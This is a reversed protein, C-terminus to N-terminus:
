LTSSIDFRPLFRHNTEQMVDFLTRGSYFTRKRTTESPDLTNIRSWKEIIDEFTDTRPNLMYSNGMPNNGGIHTNFIGWNSGGIGSRVKYTWSTWSWGHEQFLALTSLWAQCSHDGGPLVTFEGMLIPVNWGNLGSNAGNVGNVRDRMSAMHANYLALRNRELADPNQYLFASPNTPRNIVVSGWSVGNVVAGQANTVGNVNLGYHTYHHFKYIINSNWNFGHQNNRPHPLHAQWWNAGFIIIHDPNVERIGRYMEDYFNWHNIGTFGGHEGPENLLDLAAVNPNDAFHEAIAVWMELTKRRNETGIPCNPNFFTVYPVWSGDPNAVTRTPSNVPVPIRRGSHDQGNHSGYAGHLDLMTYIGHNAADQIFQELRTFNFRQGPIAPVNHFEPDVTVYTFPLRIVNMGMEAIQHFDYDTWFNRRYNEWIQLAGLAGFRAYFLESMPMHDRYPFQNAHIRYYAYPDPGVEPVAPLNESVLLSMWQETVFLGGANIGQWLVTQDYENVIYTDRTSLWPLYSGTLRAPRTAVAGRVYNFLRNACDTGFWVINNYRRAELGHVFATIQIEGIAGLASDVDDFIWVGLMDTRGGDVRVAVIHEANDFQAEFGSVEGEFIEYNDREFEEIVIDIGLIVQNTPTTDGVCALFFTTTFVVCLMIIVIKIVKNKM